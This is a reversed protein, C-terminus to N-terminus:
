QTIQPAPSIGVGGAGWAMCYTYFDLYRSYRVVPIAEVCQTSGIGTTPPLLYKFQTHQAESLQHGTWQCHGRTRAELMPARWTALSLWATVMARQVDRQDARANTSYHM